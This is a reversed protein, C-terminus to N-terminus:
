RSRSTLKKKAARIIQESKPLLVIEIRRNKARGAKTRNSALPRFEAYGAAELRKGDIGVEEQLFRVVNTARVVSLEWNSEFQSKLRPHIPVNDTHGEVRIHKGNAEKLIKGVRHLVGIGETTIKAQGSPFILRDVIKVQLQDALQTITVEGKEVQDKLGDVLEEYTNKLKNVEASKSESIEKVRKELEFALEKNQNQLYELEYTLEDNEKALDEYERNLPQFSDLYYYGAFGAFLILLILFFTATGNM